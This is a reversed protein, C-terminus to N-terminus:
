PSRSEDLPVCLVPRKIFRLVRETTSGFFMRSMDGSNGRSGMVIVDADFEIAKRNIELFPTGMCVLTEADEVKMRELLDKLRTRATMFLAKKVDDETGLSHRICKDVFDRDVVHLVLLRSPKQGLFTVAARLAQDSYPSFDVPVLATSGIPHDHTEGPMGKGM